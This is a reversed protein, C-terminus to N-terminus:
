LAEAKGYLAELKESPVASLKDAGFENLLARVEQTKGSRSKEALVARVKEITVGHEKGAEKEPVPKARGKDQPGAKKSDDAEAMEKLGSAILECGEAIKLLGDVM